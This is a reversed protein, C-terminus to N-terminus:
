GAGCTRRLELGSSGGVSRPVDSPYQGCEVVKKNMTLVVFILITRIIIFM